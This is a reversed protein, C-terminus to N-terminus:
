GAKKTAEPRNKVLTYSAGAGKFGSPRLLNLRVLDMLDRTATSKSVQNIEQYIANTLEGKKQLCKIAKLQREQCGLATLQQPTYWKTAPKAPKTNKYQRMYEAILKSRVPEKGQKKIADIYTPEQM